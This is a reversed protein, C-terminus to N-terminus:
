SLVALLLQLTSLGNFLAHLIISAVLTGTRQYLYGLALSLVFIPIPAPMETIHVLGFLLSTALVPLWEERRSPLAELRPPELVDVATPATWPDAQFTSSAPEIWRLGEPELVIPSGVGYAPDAVARRQFVRNLWTQLIGRFLLEEALPAMVVASLVALVAALPSMEQRLMLELPHRNAKFILQALLFLVYVWPTVLFFAVVGSWVNLGFRDLSLGMSRREAGAAVQVVFPIALVVAINTLTVLGLRATFSFEGAPKQGAGAQMAHFLSVVVVQILFYTFLVLLITPKKWPGVPLPRRPLLPEGRLLRPVLWLFAVIMGSGLFSLVLRLATLVQPSPNPM